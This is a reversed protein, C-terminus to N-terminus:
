RPVRGRDLQPHHLYGLARGYASKLYYTAEGSRARLLARLAGGAARTLHYLWTHVPYRHERLLFGFGVGYSFARMSSSTTADVRPHYIFLSKEFWGHGSKAMLRLVLDIEEASHVIASPGPGMREDFGGAVAISARKVFLASCACARLVSSRDIVQSSRPWRSAVEEGNEDKACCCLFDCGSHRYFWRKVQDMLEPPYWCDDDPFGVIQGNALAIGVNRARSAGLEARTHLIRTSSAAKSVLSEIRGDLNQDVIIVEFDQCTQRTLSALM